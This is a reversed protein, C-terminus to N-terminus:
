HVKSPMVRAWSIAPAVSSGELEVGWRLLGLVEVDELALERTFFSRAAVLSIPRM